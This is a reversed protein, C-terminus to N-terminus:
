KQFFPNRMIPERLQASAVTPCMQSVVFDFSDEQLVRKMWHLEFPVKINLEAMDQANTSWEIICPCLKYLRRLIARLYYHGTRCYAMDFMLSFCKQFLAVGIQKTPHAWDFNHNNSNVFATYPPRWTGLKFPKPHDAPLLNNNCDVKVFRRQLYVVGEQIVNDNQDITSFFQDQHAPSWRCLFTESRKLIIGIKNLHTELVTPYNEQDKCFVFLLSDPVTIISNDGCIILPISHVIKWPQKVDPRQEIFSTLMAVRLVFEQEVCNAVTTFKDGSSNSQLQNYYNGNFWQIIKHFTTVDGHLLLQMFVQLDRRTMSNFDHGFTRLRYSLELLAKTFRGDQTSQDLCIYHIKEEPYAQQFVPNQFCPLYNLYIKHGLALLTNPIMSTYVSM